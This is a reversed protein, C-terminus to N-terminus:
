KFELKGFFEPQHFDPIVGGIPSWTIYHPNSNNEAIKYFNAYWVTGTKPVDFASYQSLVELPLKYELTWTTPEEIEPDIFEPLSHAIEIRKLVEPPLSKSKQGSANYRMLPTGGCNIELNFYDMPSAITPSFFFEVCADEWVPGNYETTTCRVYRDEVRFIVYLNTADYVMKMQTRPKFKPTDGKFNNIILPKVEQWEPKNWNGDIEFSNELRVVEYREKEEIENKRLGNCSVLILPIFFVLFDLKLM